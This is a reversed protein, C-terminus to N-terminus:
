LLEEKTLAWTLGYKDLWFDDVYKNTVVNVISLLWYNLGDVSGNCDLVLHCRNDPIFHEIEDEDNKYYIGDKLARFVTVLDIGLEKEIDTLRM